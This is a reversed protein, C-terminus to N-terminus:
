KHRCKYRFPTEGFRKKFVSIFHSCDNFGSKTCADIVSAGSALLGKAYSLKKAELFEKPSLHMYKRFWRNLTAQSVYYRALIDEIYRIDAFKENIDDVITQMEAPMAHADADIHQEGQEELFFLLSLLIATDKLTSNEGEYLQKFLNAAREKKGKLSYCVDQFARAFLDAIASGAAADIWLCYHEHVCAKNLICLHVDGPRTVIIDGSEIAYLHNNVLFSVDGSLNFYIEYCGHIHSEDLREDDPLLYDTHYSVVYSTDCLTATRNLIPLHVMADGFSRNEINKSQKRM